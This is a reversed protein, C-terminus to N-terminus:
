IETRKITGKVLYLQKIYKKEVRYTPHKPKGSKMLEQNDSALQLWDPNDDEYIRKVVRQEDTIILYVSGYQIAKLNNIKKVIVMCGNEYTPYMSHNWVYVAFSCDEFGPVQIYSKPLDPNEDNFATVGSAQANMDYVPVTKYHAVPESVQTSSEGKDLLIQLQDLRLLHKKKRVGGGQFDGQEYGQIMRLSVGLKEALEAQSLGYTNRFKILTEGLSKEKM